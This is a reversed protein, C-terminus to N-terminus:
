RAGSGAPTPPVTRRRDAAAAETEGALEHMRARNAYYDLEDPRLRIAENEDALAEALRGLQALTIARDNLMAARRKAAHAPALVPTAALAATYDALAADLQGRRYHADARNNHADANGPEVALVHSWLTESDHWVRIQLFSLWAWAGLVAVATAALTATAWPRPRATMLRHCAAGVLIALAVAPLYTYRDAMAQPGVQVIGAVPVLAALYAGLAAAPAPLRRAYAVCVLALVVLVALPLAFRVATLSVEAPYGYLARLDAPWLTKGLYAVTAHVAVLTRTSLPVGALARMAGGSRQAVLTVVASAAALAVFPLKEALLRGLRARQWRGLPYADLVLVVVPFSVAMPKGLLALAACALTAAYWRWGGREAYRVWALLGLLYCSTCLLEKRESIWAVPEVRLPHLGWSLGALAAAFLLQKSPPTERRRGGILAVALVVVLGANLGHLLLNPLHHGLPRRGWIATDLAHSLTTLPHWNGSPHVRAFADPLAGALTGQYVYLGDDWNVFRNRLVPLYVLCVLLGVAAALRLHRAPSPM